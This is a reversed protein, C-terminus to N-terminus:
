FQVEVLHLFKLSNEFSVCSVNTFELSIGSPYWPNSIPGLVDSSNAFTKFSAFVISHFPGRPTHSNLLYQTPVSFTAFAIASFLSAIDTTPPPSETAAIFFSPKCSLNVCM